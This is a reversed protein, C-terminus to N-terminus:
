EEAPVVVSGVIKDWQGEFAKVDEIILNDVGKAIDPSIGHRAAYRNAYVRNRAQQVRCIEAHTLIFFGESFTGARNPCLQCLVWFDPPREESDFKKQGIGTVFRGIQSTKVEIKLARGSADNIAYVDAAKHNGYTVTAFVGRKLLESCVRYEGALSLLHPPVKKM